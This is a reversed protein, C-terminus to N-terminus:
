INKKNRDKDGKSPFLKSQYKKKYSDPHETLNDYWCLQFMLIGHSEDMAIAKKRHLPYLDLIKAEKRKINQDLLDLLPKVAIWGPLLCCLPCFCGQSSILLIM